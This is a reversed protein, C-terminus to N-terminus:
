RHQKSNHDHSRGKEKEKLTCKSREIRVGITAARKCEGSSLNAIATGFFGAERGQM